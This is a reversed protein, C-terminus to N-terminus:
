SGPRRHAPGPDAAPRRVLVWTGWLTLAMLPVGMVLRATGLWGVGDAALYLPVQVALRLAFLAVWLWTAAAYRRVLAPDARWATVASWAPLAPAPQVPQGQAEAPVPAAPVSASGDAPVAGTASGPAPAAPAGFGARLAEVVVGVAPWRVLISAACVTVYIANIWLGYTFYDRAEGTRWAWLVGIAVGLLGSLAQTVPTRQVLRVATAVLAVAGAAVLTPVLEGTIVYMTVFVLGPALSEVMGRVGGVADRLSFEASTLVRMGRAGEGTGGAPDHEAPM